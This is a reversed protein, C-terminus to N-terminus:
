CENKGIANDLVGFSSHFYRYKQDYIVWCFDIVDGKESLKTL